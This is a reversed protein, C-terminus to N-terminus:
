VALKVIYGGGYSVASSQLRSIYEEKFLDDGQWEVGHPRLVFHGGLVEEGILLAHAAALTLLDTGQVIDGDRVFLGEPAGAAGVAHSTDAVTGGVGDLVALYCLDLALVAKGVVPIHQLVFAEDRTCPRVTGRFVVVFPSFIALCNQFPLVRRAGTGAARTVQPVISEGLTRVMPQVPMTHVRGGMVYIDTRGSLYEWSMMFSDPSNTMFRVVEDIHRIVSKQPTFLPLSTLLISTHPSCVTGAFITDAGRISSHGTLRSHLTVSDFSSPEWM